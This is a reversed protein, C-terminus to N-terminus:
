IIPCIKQIYVHLPNFALPHQKYLSSVLYVSNSSCCSWEGQPVAKLVMFLELTLWEADHIVQKQLEQPCLM